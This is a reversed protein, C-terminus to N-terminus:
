QIWEFNALKVSSIIMSLILIVVTLAPLIILGPVLKGLLIVAVYIAMGVIITSVISIFVGGGKLMRKPHEWSFDAYILGIPMGIGFGILCFSALYILYEIGSAIHMIIHISGVFVSSIVLIALGFLFKEILMLRTGGPIMLNWCFGLRELPIQRSSLQSGSMLAFIAMPASIPLDGFSGPQNERVILPLLLLIILMLAIQMMIQPQRYFLILDRKIHAMLPSGGISSDASMVLSAKPSEEVIGKSYHRATAAMALYSLVVASIGLLLLPAAIAQWNGSASNIAAKFAWGSPLYAFVPSSALSFIPLDPSIAQPEANDFINMTINIGAWLGIGLFSGIATMVNKMRDRSVNRAFLSAIIIGLSGPIAAILIAVIVAILYYWISAKYIVGTLIIVPTLFLFAFRANLVLSEIFKYLFITKPELPLCFLLELDKGFYITFVALSLGTFLLLAFIGHFSVAMIMKLIKNGTEPDAKVAHYIGVSMAIILVMIGLFAAIVVITRGIRAGGRFISYLTRIRYKLLLTLM